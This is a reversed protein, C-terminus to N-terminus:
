NPLRCRADFLARDAQVETKVAGKTSAQGGSGAVAAAGLIFGLLVLRPCFPQTKWGRSLARSNRVENVVDAFM